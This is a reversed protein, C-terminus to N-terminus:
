KGEGWIKALNAALLQLEEITANSKMRNARSSIIWVNGPVYGKSPDIRDISPSDDHYGRGVSSFNLEIGLLPCHTVPTFDKESISHDINNYKARGRSIQLLGRLKKEFTGSLNERQWERAYHPNKKLWRRAAARKAETTKYVKPKTTKKAKM